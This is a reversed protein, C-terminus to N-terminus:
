EAEFRIFDIVGYWGPEAHTFVGAKTTDVGLKEPDTFGYSMPYFRIDFTQKGSLELKEKLNHARYDLAGGFLGTNEIIAAMKKEPLLLKVVFGQLARPGM